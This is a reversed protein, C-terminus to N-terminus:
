QLTPVRSFPLSCSVSLVNLLTLSWAGPGACADGVVTVCCWSVGPGNRLLGWVKRGIEPAVIAKIDECHRPELGEFKAIKKTKRINFVPSFILQEFCASQLKVVLKEPWFLALSKRSVPGWFVVLKSAFWVM